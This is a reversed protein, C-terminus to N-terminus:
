QACLTGKRIVTNAQTVCTCIVYFRSTTYLCTHHRIKRLIVHRYAPRSDGYVAATVNGFRHKITLNEHEIELPM